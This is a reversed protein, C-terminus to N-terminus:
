LRPLRFTESYDPYTLDIRTVRGAEDRVFILTRDDAKMFFRDPAEQTLEWPGLTTEWWLRGKDVFVKAPPDGYPRRYSGAYQALVAPDSAMEHRPPAIKARWRAVNAAALEACPLSSDVFQILVACAVSNGEIGAIGNHGSLAGGNSLAVFVLEREPVILAVASYANPYYGYHSIVRHGHYDKAFWGHAYPLQEGKSTVPATWMAELTAPRLFRGRMVADAFRAYDSATSVVNAAANPEPDPPLSAVLEVGGYMNHPTALRAMISQYHAVREASLGQAYAPDALSGPSTQTLGLPEFLRSSYAKALEEGSVGKIVHNLMGFPNGNYSYASGPPDSESTMTLVHGVTIRADTFSPDYRQMPTDLSLQGSEVLQMLVVGTMPKTLSAINFPTDPTVPIRKGFDAWGRAGTWVLRGREMMAASVGPMLLDRAQTEIMADLPAYREEGAPEHACGILAILPLALWALRRWAM